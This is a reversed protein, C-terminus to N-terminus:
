RRRLEHRPTSWFFRWSFFQWWFELPMQFSFTYSFYMIGDKLTWLRCNYLKEYLRHFTFTPITSMVVLLWKSFVRCIIMDSDSFREVKQPRILWLAASSIQIQFTIYRIDVRKQRDEHPMIKSASNFVKSVYAINVFYFLKMFFHNSNYMRIM